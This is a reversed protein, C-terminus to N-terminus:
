NQKVVQLDTNVSRKTQLLKNHIAELKSFEDVSPNGIELCLLKVGYEFLVATAEGLEPKVVNLQGMLFEEIESVYQSKEDNSMPPNTPKDM